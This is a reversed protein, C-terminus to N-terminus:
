KHFYLNVQKQIDLNLKKITGDNHVNEIKKRVNWPFIKKMDEKYLSGDRPTKYNTVIYQNDRFEVTFGYPTSSSSENFIQKNQSYFSQELAWAYVYYLNNNKENILYTKISVFWKENNYKNSESDNKKILFSEIAMKIEENSTDNLPIYNYIWTNLLVSKNQNIRRIDIFFITIIILIIIIIITIIKIIISNKKQVKKSYNITSLINEEFKEAIKEQKLREGSLLENITIDLEDCLPKFLSIDPLNKGNEWNSVARDSVGLKEALEKQTQKKEKRCKAIFIGIKIQEM